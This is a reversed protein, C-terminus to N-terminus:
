DIFLKSSVQSLVYAINCMIIANIGAQMLVVASFCKMIEDVFARIKLDVEILKELKAPDSSILQENLEEYFGIAFSMFFIPWYDLVVCIVSASSSNIIQYINACWFNIDKFTQKMYTLQHNTCSIIMLNIMFLVTITFHSKFIKNARLVSKKLKECDSTALWNNLELLNKVQTMMGQVRHMSLILNLIKFHTGVYAVLVAMLQSFEESNSVSFIAFSGLVTFSLLFLQIIACLLYSSITPYSKRLGFVQLFKFPFDFIKLLENNSM